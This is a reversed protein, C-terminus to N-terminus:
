NRDFRLCILMKQSCRMLACILINLSCPENCILALIAGYTVNIIKDVLESM